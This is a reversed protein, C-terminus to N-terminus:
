RPAADAAPDASKALYTDLFRLIAEYAEEQNEKKRFGHGEDDFLVYEVPVGNARVAEVIEDSEVKLVRPDNAGQLVMMPKSINEAHFLPSKARFFEEDDFNGMEKELSARQAEWWPPINQVTRYWNSIGFIDVGVAFADPRFTLAALTMYGGYSGGIVGIAEPDVWGTDILMGKAAVVDDLDGDGHKRDDLHYFTKGYGSSGRNNIAYIAVGHNVLYQILDSYGIRSQGGPGGHVWVMAPVPTDPNAQHPRYLVGPIELGDYSAFRAVSGEVLDDPDIGSHLSTTLRTATEGGIRAHFLDRPMRGSSVYFAMNEEDRALAVSSISADPFEPLPVPQMTATEFVQLVTSADENIGVTLYRGSESVSAFSVDWNPKLVDETIGSTLDYRALYAFEADRDTTYYLQAGDRSFGQGRNMAEEPDDTLLTIEGTDRDHVYLDSDANTVDRRLAIYRRDPSVSELDMGTENQYFLEREYGSTRHEYVDFSRGDRETTATFFSTGDQAWGLFRAKLDTGPSLDTVSGDIEKVYVHNLEDGGQDATYLFREDEPFYSLTFISEGTSSTLATSPGGSVPVSYANFIGTQDSSVLLKSADPSFSAGRFGTSGLFERIPYMRGPRDIGTPPDVAEPQACGLLVATLLGATLLRLPM